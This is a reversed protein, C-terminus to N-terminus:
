KAQKEHLELAGYIKKLKDLSPNRCTRWSRYTYISLGIEKCLRVITLRNYMKGYRVKNAKNVKRIRGKIDNCIEKGELCIRTAM